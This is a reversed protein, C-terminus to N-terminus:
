ENPPRKGQCTLHFGTRGGPGTSMPGCFAKCRTGEPFCECGRSAGDGPACSAPLPRCFYDTPLDFVDSLFIECYSTRADCYHAGCALWDAVPEKCGGNVNLDVGAAHAACASDYVKGDCACVPARAGDCTLPKPRCTGAKKGKGCLHPTLECFQDALCGAGDHCGASADLAADPPASATPPTRCAVGVDVVLAAAGALLWWTRSTRM